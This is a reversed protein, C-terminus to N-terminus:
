TIRKNRTKKKMMMEQKEKEDNKVPEIKINTQEMSNTQEISSTQEPLIKKKKLQNWLQNEKEQFQKENLLSGLYESIDDSLFMFKRFLKLEQLSMHYFSNLLFDDYHTLYPYFLFNLILIM